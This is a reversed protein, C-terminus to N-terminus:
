SGFRVRGCRRQAECEFGLWIHDGGVEVTRDGAADVAGPAIDIDGEQEVVVRRQCEVAQAQAEGGAKLVCEAPRDVNDDEISGRAVKGMAHPAIADNQDVAVAHPSDGPFDLGAVLVEVHLRDAPEVPM